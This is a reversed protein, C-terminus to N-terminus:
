VFEGLSKQKKEKLDIEIKGYEGDFGPEIKVKENRVNAIARAVAKGAIKEIEEKSADLMIRFESGFKKILKEYISNVTKTFVGVGEVDAIVESLPILHSFPVANEPIFNKPRDALDEVRHLVGLTLPKGCIPCINNLKKAEEPSCSFHCNRHGDYHYKGEQPFFEITRLFRKKDKKKVADFIEEFSLKEKEIEFVNAERGIKNTHASHSDSNSVLAFRDLASVRWNMAPDSSLGTELAFIKRAQDEFAGEISDYGSKSGFLGFWPTWVHAPVLVIKSSIEFLMEALEAPSCKGIIPRGDASLNSRRGLVNNIQEAIEFDPAHVVHHTKKVGNKTSVITSVEVTLMFLVEEGRGKLKYIGKYQSRELNEKLHKFWLPHTFDGTGILNIGKEKAGEYIEPLEM